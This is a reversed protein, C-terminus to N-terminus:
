RFANELLHERRRLNAVRVIHLAATRTLGWVRKRWFSIKSLKVLRNINWRHEFSPKMFITSALTITQQRPLFKMV